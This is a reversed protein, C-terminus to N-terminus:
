SARRAENCVPCMTEKTGPAAHFEACCQDSVGFCSGSAHDCAYASAEEEADAEEEEEADEFAGLVCLSIVYDWPVRTVARFTHGVTQYESALWLCHETNKLAIGYTVVEFVEDTLDSLDTESVYFSADDWRVEVIDGLDVDFRM